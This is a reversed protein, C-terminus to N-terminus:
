SGDLAGSLRRIAAEGGPDALLAREEPHDLLREVVDVLLDGDGALDSLPVDVKGRRLRIVAAALRGAAVQQAEVELRLFEASRIRRISWGEIAEWPVVTGAQHVGDPALLPHNTGRLSAPVTFAGVGGFVLITLVGLSTEGDRVFGVGAM